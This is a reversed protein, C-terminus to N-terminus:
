KKKLCRPTEVSEGRTDCFRTLLFLGDTRTTLNHKGSGTKELKGFRDFGGNSILINGGNIKLKGLFPLVRAM